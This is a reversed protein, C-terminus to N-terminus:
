VLPRVGFLRFQLVALLGGYLAVGAFIAATDLIASVAVPTEAILKKPQFLRDFGAWALFASFLVVGALDGITFIPSCGFCQPTVLDAHKTPAGRKLSYVGLFQALGIYPFALDANRVFQAPTSLVTSGSARM